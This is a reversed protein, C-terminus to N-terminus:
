EQFSVFERRELQGVNDAAGIHIGNGGHIREALCAVTHPQLQSHSARSALAWCCKTMIKVYSDSRVEFRCAANLSSKHQTPLACSQVLRHSLLSFVRDKAPSGCEQKTPMRSFTGRAKICRHCRV